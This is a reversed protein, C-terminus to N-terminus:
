PLALVSGTRPMDSHFMLRYGRFNESFIVYVYTQLITLFIIKISVNVLDDVVGLIEHNIVVSFSVLESSALWLLLSVLLQLSLFLLDETGGITVSGDKLFVMITSVM